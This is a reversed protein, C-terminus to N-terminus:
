GFFLYSWRVYNWCFQLSPQIRPLIHRILTKPVELRPEFGLVRALKIFLGESQPPRKELNARSNNVLVKRSSTSLAAFYLRAGSGSIAPRWLHPGKEIEQSAEWVNGDLVEYLFAGGMIILTPFACWSTPLSCMVGAYGPPTRSSLQNVQKHGKRYICNSSRKEIELM